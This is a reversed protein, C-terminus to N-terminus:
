HHGGQRRRLPRPSQPHLDGGSGAKRRAGSLLTWGPGRRKRTSLPDILIVGTDGEIITMNSVDFGRVQYIRDTVQFLGNNMNLQAM